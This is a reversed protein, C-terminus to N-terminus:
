HGILWQGSLGAAYVALTVLVVVAAWTRRRRSVFPIPNQLVDAASVIQPGIGEM